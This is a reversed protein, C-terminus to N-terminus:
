RPPLARKVGRYLTKAPQVQGLKVLGSSILHITTVYKCMKDATTAQGAARLESNYEQFMPGVRALEM